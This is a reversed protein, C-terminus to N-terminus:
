ANKDKKREVHQTVQEYSMEKPYLLNGERDYVPLASAEFLGRTANFLRRPGERIQDTAIKIRQEAEAGTIGKRALIELQRERNPDYFINGDLVFGLFQQPTIRDTEANVAGTQLGFPNNEPKLTIDKPSILVGIAQETGRHGVRVFKRFGKGNIVAIEDPPTVGWPDEKGHHKASTLGENVIQPLDDLSTWHLLWNGDACDIVKELIVETSESAEPTSQSELESM